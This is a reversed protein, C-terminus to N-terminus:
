AMVDKRRLLTDRLAISIIGGVVAAFGIFVLSSTPMFPITWTLGNSYDITSSLFERYTLVISVAMLVAGSAVITGIVRRSHYALGFVLFISETVSLAMPLNSLTNNYLTLKSLSPSNVMWFQVIIAIVEESVFIVIAAILYIRSLRNTIGTNKTIQYFM